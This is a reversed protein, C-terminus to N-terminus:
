VQWLLYGVDAGVSHKIIESKNNWDVQFVKVGKAELETIKKSDTELRVIAKVNADRRLLAEVIKGGLNGTAGAIVITKKM